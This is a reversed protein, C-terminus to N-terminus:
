EKNLPDFKPDLYRLELEKKKRYTEKDIELQYNKLEGRKDIWQTLLLLGFGLFPLGILILCIVSMIVFIPNFFHIPEKELSFKLKADSTALHRAHESNEGEEIYFETRSSVYESFEEKLNEPIILSRNILTVPTNILLIIALVLAGCFRYLDLDYHTNFIKFKEEITRM